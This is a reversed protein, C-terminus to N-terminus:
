VKRYERIAEPDGEEYRLNWKGAELKIPVDDLEKVLADVLLPHRSYLDLFTDCMEDANKRSKDDEDGADIVNGLSPSVRSLLKENVEDKNGRKLVAAAESLKWGFTQFNDLTNCIAYIIGVWLDIKLYPKIVPYVKQFGLFTLGIQAGLDNVFFWEQVNWGLARHINAIFHGTVANRLNGIHIVSNPNTSTHEVIVTKGKFKDSKGFKEGSSLIHSSAYKFVEVRNLSINLFGAILDTKSIFPCPQYMLYLLCFFFGLCVNKLLEERLKQHIEEPSSGQFKDDKKKQFLLFTLDKSTFDQDVREKLNPIGVAKEVFERVLQFVHINEM